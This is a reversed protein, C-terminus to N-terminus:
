FPIDVNKSISMQRLVSFDRDNIAENILIIDQQSLKHGRVANLDISIGVVKSNEFVLGYLGYASRSGMSIHLIVNRLIYKITFRGIQTEMWTKGVHEMVWEETLPITQNKIIYQTLSSHALPHDVKLDKELEVIEETKM